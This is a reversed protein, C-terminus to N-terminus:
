QFISINTILKLTLMAVAPVSIQSLVSNWIYLKWMADDSSLSQSLNYDDNKRRNANVKITCITKVIMSATCLTHTWQTFYIWFYGAYGLLSWKIFRFLWIYIMLITLITRLVIFWMPILDSGIYTGSMEILPPINTDKLAKEHGCSFCDSTTVHPDNYYKCPCVTLSLRDKCSTTSETNTQLKQATTTSM